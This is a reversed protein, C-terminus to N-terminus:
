AAQALAAHRRRRAAELLICAVGFGAFVIWSSYDPVSELDVNTLFSFPPQGNPTGYALFSLTEQTSTAYYYMTETM